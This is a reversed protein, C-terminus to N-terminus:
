YVALFKKGISFVSGTFSRSSDLIKGIATAAMKGLKMTMYGTFWGAGVGVALQKPV